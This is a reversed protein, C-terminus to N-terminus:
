CAVDIRKQLKLMAAKDIKVSEATLNRNIKTM